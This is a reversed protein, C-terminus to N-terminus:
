KLLAKFIVALGYDVVMVYLVTAIVIVLIIVTAVMVYRRDPWVVKKMEVLTERLYGLIKDKM